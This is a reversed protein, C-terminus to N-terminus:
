TSLLSTHKFGYEVTNYRQPLPSVFDEQDHNTEDTQSSSSSGQHELQSLVSSLAGVLSNQFSRDRRDDRQAM